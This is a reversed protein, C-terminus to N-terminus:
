GGGWYAVYMYIPRLVGIKMGITNLMCLFSGRRITALLKLVFQRLGRAILRHLVNGFLELKQRAHLLTVSLCVISLRCAMLRVYRLLTWSFIM